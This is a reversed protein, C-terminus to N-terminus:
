GNRLRNKESGCAYRPSANLQDTGIAKAAWVPSNGSTAQTSNKEPTSHVV